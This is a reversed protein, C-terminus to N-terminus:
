KIINKYVKGDKMILLLNQEPNTLIEINELPNGNILLIDALAGEEIVGIKGLLLSQTTRISAMIEGNVSTAQKLIEANSFWKTRNPFEECLTKKVEMDM